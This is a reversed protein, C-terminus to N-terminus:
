LHKPDSPAFLSILHRAHGFQVVHVIRPENAVHPLNSTLVTQHNLHNQYNSHQSYICMKAMVSLVYTETKSAILLEQVKYANM